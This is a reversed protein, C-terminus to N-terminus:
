AMYPRYEAPSCRFGYHCLLQNAGASNLAHLFVKVRPGSTDFKVEHEAVTRNSPHLRQGQIELEASIRQFGRSSIFVSYINWNNDPKYNLRLSTKRAVSRQATAIDNIRGPEQAISPQKAAAHRNLADTWGQDRGLTTARPDFIDFAIGHTKILDLCVGLPLADFLSLECM